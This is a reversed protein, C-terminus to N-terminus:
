ERNYGSGGGIVMEKRKNRYCFQKFFDHESDGTRGNQKSDGTNLSKKGERVEM